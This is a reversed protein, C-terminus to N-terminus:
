CKTKVLVIKLYCIAGHFITYFGYNFCVWLIPIPKLYLYSSEAVIQMLSFGGVCEEGM